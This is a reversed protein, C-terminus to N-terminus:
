PRNRIAARAAYDKIAEWLVHQTSRHPQAQQIRLVGVASTLAGHDCGADTFISREEARASMIASSIIQEQADRDPAGVLEHWVQNAKLMVDQPIDDPKTM